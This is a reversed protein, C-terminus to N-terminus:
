RPISARWIGTLGVFYVTGSTEEVVVDSVRAFDDAGGAVWGAQWSRPLLLQRVIRGHRDLQLIRGEKGNTDALYLSQSDPGGTLAVPGTVPPDVKPQFSEQVVGRFYATVDGTTALVYISGDVYLDLPDATKGAQLWSEPPSGPSDDPYKLIEGAADLVYFNGNFGACAIADVNGGSGLKSAQWRDDPALRYLTRGDTVMLADGDLAAVLYPEVKRGAVTTGPTLLQTLTGSGPEVRYVADAVLYLRDGSGLLRLASRDVTAPLTALRTVETLRTVHQIQDRIATITRRRPTLLSADAGHRAAAALSSEAAQLQTEIAAPPQTQTVAALHADTEALLSEVQGAHAQRLDYGAYLGGLALLLVLFGVVARGRLPLRPGRPNHSASFVSGDHRWRGRYRHVYGIGLPGTARRPTTPAPIRREFAEILKTRLRDVLVARRLSPSLWEEAPPIPEPAPDSAVTLWAACAPHNATARKVTAPLWAPNAALEALHPTAALARGVSTSGVLVADGPAIQTSYLAPRISECLGLPVTEDADPAHDPQWSALEPFAFLQGGQLVVAQGPPSLAVLLEPGDIAVATAGVLIRRDRNLPRANEALVEHNAAAFADQLTDALPVHEAFLFSRRLAALAQHSVAEAAPTPEVPEATALLRRGSRDRVDLLLPADPRHPHDSLADM